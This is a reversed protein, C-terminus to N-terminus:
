GEGSCAVAPTNNRDHFLFRLAFTKYGDASLIGVVSGARNVVAFLSSAIFCRLDNIESRTKMSLVDTSLAQVKETSNKVVGVEGDGRADGAKYAESVDAAGVSIGGETVGVGIDIPSSVIEM